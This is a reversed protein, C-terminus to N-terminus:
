NHLEAVNPEKVVTTMDVPNSSYLFTRLGKGENSDRWCHAKFACYSCAIPLSMNGSKGHPIPHHAKLVTDEKSEGLSSILDEATQIMHVKSPVSCPVYKIHGNQKDIWIFGQSDVGTDIFNKYFGLQYIYGFSDTAQTIGEKYRSYGYSSTSKVDVLTNDVIADIRGSIDWGNIRHEVKHQQHSVEHGAEEALYM